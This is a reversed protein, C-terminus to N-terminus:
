FAVNWDFITWRLCVDSDNFTLWLNIVIFQPVDAFIKQKSSRDFTDCHRGVKVKACDVLAKGYILRAIQSRLNIDILLWYTYILYLICVILTCCGILRFTTLNSSSKVESTSSLGLGSLFGLFILIGFILLLFCDGIGVGGKSFFVDCTRFQKKLTIFFYFM